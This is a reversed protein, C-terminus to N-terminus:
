VARDIYNRNSRSQPVRSLYKKLVWGQRASQSQWDFYEVRIWKGKEELLVATQNPVLTGVVPTGPLPEKRAVAPRDRVVFVSKGADPPQVQKMAEVIAGLLVKIEADRQRQEAHGAEIKATLREEMQQSSWQEYIFVLLTMLMGVIALVNLGKKESYRAFRQGFKNVEEQSPTEETRLKALSEAMEQLEPEVGHQRWHRAIQLATTESILPLYPKRESLAALADAVPSRTAAQIARITNEWPATLAKMRELDVLPKAAAIAKALSDAATLSFQIASLTDAGIAGFHRNMEEIKKQEALAAQMLRTEVSGLHSHLSMAKNMERQFAAMKELEKQFRWTPDHPFM